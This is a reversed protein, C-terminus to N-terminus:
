LEAHYLSVGGHETVLIMDEHRIGGLGSLYLGPEITFVMGPQLITNAFINDFRIRPNEHTELGIGHGLNHVFLKETGHAQFEKRAIKDLEGIPIGPKVANMANRQARKVSEDMKLIESDPKGFFVMRTLDGAYHDVVAGVDIMVAQNERLKTKGARHHPYAGNEGFAIIPTFSMASAGRERCFKEFEWAIEEEAVGVRLLSAAHKYGKWTLDAARRLAAIEEEEKIIRFPMIPETIFQWEKHPLMKQLSQYEDLTTFASDIGIKHVSQLDSQLKKPDSLEVKCPAQKKAIEFYRGDVYLTSGNKGIALRGKSLELGTLYFLDVPKDILLLDVTIHKEAKELRRM